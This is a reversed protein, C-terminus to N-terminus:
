PCIRMNYEDPPTKARSDRWYHIYQPLGDNPCYPPLYILFIGMPYRSKPAKIPYSTRSPFRLHPFSERHHCKRTVRRCTIPGGRIVRTALAQGSPTIPSLLLLHNCTHLTTDARCPPRNHHSSFHSSLSPSRRLCRCPRGVGVFVSYLVVSLM